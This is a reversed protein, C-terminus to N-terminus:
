KAMMMERLPKGCSDCKGMKSRMSKPGMKIEHCDGCMMMTMDMEAM